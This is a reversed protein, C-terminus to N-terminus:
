RSFDYYEDRVGIQLVMGGKVTNYRGSTRNVIQERWVGHKDQKFTIRQGEPNTTYAYDQMDSMGNDDIRKANDRQVTVYMDWIRVITGAHRDSFLLMTCGFGVKPELPSKQQSQILNVLSGFQM